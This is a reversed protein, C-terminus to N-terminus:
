HGPYSKDNMEGNQSTDSLAAIAFAGIGLTIFGFPISLIFVGTSIMIVGFIDLLLIAITNSIREKIRTFM